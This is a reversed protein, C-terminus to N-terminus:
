PPSWARLKQIVDAPFTGGPCIVQRCEPDGNTTAKGGLYAPITEEPVYQCLVEYQKKGSPIVYKSRQQDDLSASFLAWLAPFASPTNLLIVRKIVEPCHDSYTQIIRMWRNFMPINKLGLGRLDEVVTFKPWPHGSSEHIEDLIGWLMERRYVEDRILLEEPAEIITNVDVNGLREWLVPEGDRDCGMIGFPKWFPRIAIHMSVDWTFMANQADYKREWAFTERLQKAADDVKGKRARLYRLLMCEDSRCKIDPFEQVIEDARARLTLLLQWEDDSVYHQLEKLWQPPLRQRREGYPDKGGWQPQPRFAQMRYVAVAETQRPEIPKADVQHLSPSTPESDRPSSRSFCCMGSCSWDWSEPQPDTDEAVGHPANGSSGRNSIHDYVNQSTKEYIAGEADLARSKEPRLWNTLFSIAWTSVLAASLIWALDYVNWGFETLITPM